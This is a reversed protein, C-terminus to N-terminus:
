LDTMIEYLNSTQKCIYANLNTHLNTQAYINKLKHKNTMHKIIRMNAHKKINKALKYTYTQQSIKKKHKYM